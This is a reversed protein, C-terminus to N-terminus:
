DESIRDKYQSEFIENYIGGKEILEEHTGREKIRNDQLVIIEDCYMVASIRHAIIITTRNDRIEKFRKLILSETVTDVASLADDLILIKIKSASDM